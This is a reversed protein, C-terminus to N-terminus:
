RRCLARLAINFWDLRNLKPRKQFIDGRNQHLKHLITNGGLVTARIELGLRGPLLKGLPAGAQLINQTRRIQFAIMPWWNGSCDHHAIQTEHINFYSLDEQPLYIRGKQWDLAIDQWFNILQLASCINDSLAFMHATRHNFLHLLLRGIPNASRRCYQMLEDFDAYRTKYVDQSFADLLDHFLQIPLQHARIIQALDIFLASDTDQGRDIRELQQRYNELLALRHQPSHEGEDAFDDASRSFHYIIAIPRRLAKPLLCSAVPFNEYHSISYDTKM